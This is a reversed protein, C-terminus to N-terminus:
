MAYMICMTLACASHKIAASKMAGIFIIVVSEAVGVWAVVVVKMSGFSTVVVSLSGTVVLDELMVTPFRVSLSKATTIPPVKAPSIKTIITTM